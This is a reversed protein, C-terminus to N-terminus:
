FQLVTLKEESVFENFVNFIKFYYFLGISYVKKKRKNKAYNMMETWNLRGTTSHHGSMEIFDM